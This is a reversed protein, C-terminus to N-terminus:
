QEIQCDELKLIVGKLTKESEKAVFSNTGGYFSFKESNVVYEGCMLIKGQNFSNIKERNQVSKKDFDLQYVIISLVAIASLSCVIIKHKKSFKKHKASIFLIVAFILILFLFCYGM